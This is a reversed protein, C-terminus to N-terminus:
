GELAAVLERCFNPIDEVVRGWVINGDRFASENVWIGGAEIANLEAFIGKRRERGHPLIALSYPTTRHL